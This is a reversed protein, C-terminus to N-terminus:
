ASFHKPGLLDDRDPYYTLKHKKVGDPINAAAPTFTGRPDASTASAAATPAIGVVSTGAAGKVGDVFVIASDIMRYPVGLVDTTAITVTTAAVSAASSISEIRRFAKKGVVATTGNLTFNETMPQNLYDYGRVTLVATAAGSAVVSIGRGFKGMVAETQLSMDALVPENATGAISLDAQVTGKAAIPYHASLDVELPGSLCVDAAYKMKEVHLNALVPYNNGKATM